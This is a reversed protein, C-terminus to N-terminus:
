KKGKPKSNLRGLRAYAATAEIGRNVGQLDRDLQEGYRRLQALVRGLEQYLALIQQRGAPTIEAQRQRVVEIGIELRRWDRLLPEM